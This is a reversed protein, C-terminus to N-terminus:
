ADGPRVLLLRCQDVDFTASGGADGHGLELFAEAETAATKVRRIRQLNQIMADLAALQLSITPRLLALVGSLVLHEVVSSSSSTV